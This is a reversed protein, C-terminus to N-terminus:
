GCRGSRLALRLALDEGSVQLEVLRGVGSFYQADGELPIQKCVYELAATMNAITNQDFETM